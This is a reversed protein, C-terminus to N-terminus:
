FDEDSEGEAPMADGVEFGTLSGGVRAVTYDAILRLALGTGGTLIASLLYGIPNVLLDIRNVLSIDGSNAGFSAAGSGDAAQQQRVALWIAAAVGLAGVVVLASGALRAFAAARAVATRNLTAVDDATITTEGPMRPCSKVDSGAGAHPTMWSSTEKRSIMAVAAQTM